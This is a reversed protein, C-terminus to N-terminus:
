RKTGSQSGCDHARPTSQPKFLLDQFSRAKEGPVTLFTIEVGQEALTKLAAIEEDSAAIHRFLPRRGPGIGMGGVNLATYRVGGEYLRLAAQPSRLLLMTTEPPHSDQPLRRVAEALSLVDVGLGPPAALRMVEQMFPDAAVEDDVIVIRTFPRHKCWVAIVQGHILRDDIRVLGWEQSM